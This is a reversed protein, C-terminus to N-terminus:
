CTRRRRAAGTSRPSCRTRASTTPSARGRVRRAAAARSSSWTATRSASDAPSTPTCSSARARAEDPGARPGAPDPHRVQVAGHLRGTTLYTAPLRADPEEAATATSSRIFRARGDPTAFRSPSCGRRAPHDEAPCPWFVGDEADIREYTIGAYDATAAPPPGACSTSCRAAPRGTFCSAAAWGTPWNRCSTLDGRVGTPPPLARRRRIVRGELNTM